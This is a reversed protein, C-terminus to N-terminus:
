YILKASHHLSLLLTSSLSPATRVEVLDAGVELTGQLALVADRGLFLQLHLSSALLLELIKRGEALEAIDHVYYHVLNGDEVPLLLGGDELDFVFSFQLPRIDLDSLHENAYQLQTLLVPFLNLLPNIERGGLHNFRSRLYGELPSLDLPHHVSVHLLQVTLGLGLDYSAMLPDELSQINQLLNVRLRNRESIFLGFDQSVAHLCIWISLSSRVEDLLLLHCLKVLLEEAPFGDPLTM